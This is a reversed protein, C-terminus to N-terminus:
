MFKTCNQVKLKGVFAYFVLRHLVKTVSLPNVKIHAKVKWEHIEWLM